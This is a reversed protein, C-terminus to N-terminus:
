GPHGLTPAAGPGPAQLSPRRLPRRQLSTPECKRCRLQTAVGRRRSGGRRALQTASAEAEFQQFVHPFYQSIHVSLDGDDCALTNAHGAAPSRLHQCRRLPCRRAWVRPPVTRGEVSASRSCVFINTSSVKGDSDEILASARLESCIFTATAWASSSSNPCISTRAAM